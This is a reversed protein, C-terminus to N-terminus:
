RKMVQGARVRAWKQCEKEARKEWGTGGEVCGELFPLIEHMDWKDKLSFLQAFRQDPVVSLESSPLYQITKPIPHFCEARLLDLSPQSPLMVPLALQWSQLFTPTPQATPHSQLTRLGYWRQLASPSLSYPPTPTTSFFQLISTICEPRDQTALSPTLQDITLNDLSLSDATITAIILDLLQNVYATSM